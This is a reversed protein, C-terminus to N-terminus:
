KNSYSKGSVYAFNARVKCQMGREQLNDICLEVIRPSKRDESEIYDKLAVGFISTRRENTTIGLRWPASEECWQSSQFKM